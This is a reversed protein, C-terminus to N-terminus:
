CICLSVRYSSGLYFEFPIRLHNKKSTWDIQPLNKMYIKNPRNMKISIEKIFNFHIRKKIDKM